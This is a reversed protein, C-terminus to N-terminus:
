TVQAPRTKSPEFDSNAPDDVVEADVAESEDFDDSDGYLGRSAELAPTKEHRASDGRAAFILDSPPAYGVTEILSALTEAFEVDTGVGLAVRQPADLGFLKAERELTSLIIKAADVNGSTMDKFFARRVAVVTARHDAMLSERTASDIIDQRAREVDKRAQGPSKGTLEAIESFTHGAVRLELSRSRREYVTEDDPTVDLEANRTM